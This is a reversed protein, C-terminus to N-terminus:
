VLKAWHVDGAGLHVGTDTLTAPSDQSGNCGSNGHGSYGNGNSFSKM